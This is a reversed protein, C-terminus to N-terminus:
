EEYYDFFNQKTDVILKDIIEKQIKNEEKSFSKQLIISKDYTLFNDCMWENWMPFRYGNDMTICWHNEECDKKNKCIKCQEM